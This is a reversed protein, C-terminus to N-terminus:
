SFRARRQETRRSTAIALFRYSGTELVKGDADVYDPEPSWLALRGIAYTFRSGAVIRGAQELLAPREVDASFFAEFPAGNQIQAYHAGTSGSSMLVEHESSAEYRAALDEMVSVFNTAVAVRIEDGFGASSVLLAGAFLLAHWRISM